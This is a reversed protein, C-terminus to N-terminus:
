RVIFKKVSRSNGTQVELLYMGSSADITLQEQLLGGVANFDRELLLRGRIDFVKATYQLAAAQDLRLTFSGSNPNPFISFTGLTQDAVDLVANLKCLNLSWSDISGGDQGFEDFVELTWTGAAATNLLASLPSDPKLTGSLAIPSGCVQASGSDTFTAVVDDSDGCEQSFLQVETGDPSILTGTIDATWTHPINVSVSIGTIQFNEAIVIQSAVTESTDSPIEVPVNTAFVECNTVGTTFEGTQSAQGECAANAPIVTWYYVTGEVLQ